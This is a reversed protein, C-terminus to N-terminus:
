RSLNVTAAESQSTQCYPCVTWNLRLAQRCQPCSKKLKKLCYPCILFGTEIPRKCAPCATEHALQASKAKIELEREKAEDLREPPRIIMYILWGFFPFILSVLSWYGAMAGRDKADRYTWYGVSIWLITAFGRLLILLFGFMPSSFFNLIADM